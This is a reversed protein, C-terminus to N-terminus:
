WSACRRIPISTVCAASVPSRRRRWPRSGWERSRRTRRGAGPWCGRTRCGCREWGVIGWRAEELIASMSGQSREIRPDVGYAHILRQHRLAMERSVTELIAQGAHDVITALTFSKEKGYGFIRGLMEVVYPYTHDNDDLLILHYLPELASKAELTQDTELDPSATEPTPVM